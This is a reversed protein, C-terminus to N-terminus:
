SSWLLHPISYYHLVEWAVSKIQSCHSALPLSYVSIVHNSIDKSFIVRRNHSSHFILLFLYYCNISFLIREKYPTRLRRVEKRNGNGDGSYQNKYGEVVLAIEIADLSTERSRYGALSYKFFFFTNQDHGDKQKQLRLFERSDVFYFGLEKVNLLM